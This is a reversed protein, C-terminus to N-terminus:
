SNVTYQGVCAALILKLCEGGSSSILAVEVCFIVSNDVILTSLETIKDVKKRSGDTIWMLQPYSKWLALGM